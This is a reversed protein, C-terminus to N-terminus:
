VEVFYFNKGCIVLNKLFSFWFNSIKFTASKSLSLLELRRHWKLTPVLPQLM